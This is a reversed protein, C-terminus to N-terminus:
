KKGWAYALVGCGFITLIYAGGADVASLAAFVSVVTGYLFGKQIINM